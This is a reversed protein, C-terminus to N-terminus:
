ILNGDYDYVKGNKEKGKFLDGTAQGPFFDLITKHRIRKKLIVTPIGKPFATCTWGNFESNDGVATLHQCYM